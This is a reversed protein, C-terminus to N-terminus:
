ATDAPNLKREAKRLSKPSASGADCKGWSKSVVRPQKGSGTWKMEVARGCIGSDDATSTFSYRVAAAPTKFAALDRKGDGSGPISQLVEAQRMLLAAQRDMEAAVRDLEAFPPAEFTGLQAVPVLHRAPVVRVKPAVDGMYEITAVSGDPLNIKMIHSDPDSAAAAGAVMLAAAGALLTTALKRM